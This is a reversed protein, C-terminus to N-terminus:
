SDNWPYSVGCDACFLPRVPEGFSTIKWKIDHGNSCVLLAPQGCVTCFKDESDIEHGNEDWPM